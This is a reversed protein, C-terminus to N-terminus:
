VEVEGSMLKPLLLDRTKCLNHNKLELMDILPHIQEVKEGFQKILNNSPVLVQVKIFSSITLQPLAAGGKRSIMEHQGMDSKLYYGLYFINIANNGNLRILQANINSNIFKNNIFVCHGIEGRNVILLDNRKLHGKKLLAHKTESIYRIGDFSIRNNSFNKPSIFPIGQEVFDKARPYKASYNGDSLDLDLDEINIYEWGEPIKGISSDVLKVKEHGPFRFNVFWEKYIAQTMEELIKIRCTNNEILDDYASLISAIKQQISLEKHYYIKFKRLTDLGVFPQASGTRANKIESQFRPSIVYYYLYRDNIVNPNPKFLAVNKISFEKRAKIFAAEGLSAGIHAFLTDGYEPKSRSIVKIHDNISIRDASEFDIIGGVIEKAKVLPVGEEIVKPTDHTGDTVLTCVDKFTSTSLVMRM